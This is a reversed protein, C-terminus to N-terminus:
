HEGKEGVWMQMKEGPSRDAAHPCPEPRSHASRHRWLWFSGRAALLVPSAGTSYLTFGSSGCRRGKADAIADQPFSLNGGEDGIYEDKAVRRWNGRKAPLESRRPQTLPAGGAGAPRSLAIRDQSSTSM